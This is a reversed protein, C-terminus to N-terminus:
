PGPKLTLTHRKTTAEAADSFPQTIPKGEYWYYFQDSYHSSGPQGSEGGAILLISDDWDGLNAVFRMAPGHHKTAARPSMSTGGQPKDTISLWAKLLGEHGIPHLMDLSNFKKMPWDQLRASRTKQELQRVAQDAAAILLEDYNKYIKPMWKEPRETLIKQLFATSRWDYRDAMDALVPELIAQLAAREAEGLFPVVPSQPDAIGNWDKTLAILKKTREDKPSASQSAAVLQAGLFVHPLSYTDTQVKLM